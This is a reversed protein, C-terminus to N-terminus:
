QEKKIKKKKKSQSSVPSDTNQSQESKELMVSQQRHRKQLQLIKVQTMLQSSVYFWNAQLM